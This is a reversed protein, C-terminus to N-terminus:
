RKRRSVISNLKSMVSRWVKSKIEGKRDSISNCQQENHTNSTDQIYIASQEIKHKEDETHQEHETHPENCMICQEHRIDTLIPIYFIISFLFLRATFFTRPWDSAM